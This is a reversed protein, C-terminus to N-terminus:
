LVRLVRTRTATAIHTNTTTLSVHEEIAKTDLRVLEDGTEVETGGPVVWTVTSFGRVRCKIETNNASELTGQETVTVLLDGRTITHTLQPGTEPKSMTGPILAAATALIALVGITLLGRWWWRRHSSSERDRQEVQHPQQSRHTESPSPTKPLLEISM